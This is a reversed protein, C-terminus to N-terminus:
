AGGAIENKPKTTSPFMPGLGLTSAGARVAARATELSSTSVGVPMGAGCVARVAAPSLDDRGVHVADAGCLLAIDARDNIVV